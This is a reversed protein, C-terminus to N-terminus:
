DASSFSVDHTTRRLSWFNVIVFIQFTLLITFTINRLFNLLGVDHKWISAKEESKKREREEKNMIKWKCKQNDNSCCPPLPCMDILRWIDIFNYGHWWPLILILRLISNESINNLKSNELWEKRKYCVLYSKSWELVKVRM